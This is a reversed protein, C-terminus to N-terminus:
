KAPGKAATGSTVVVNHLALEAQRQEHKQYGHLWKLAAGAASVAVTTEVPVIADPSVHFGFRTLALHAIAVALTTFLPTALAVVRNITFFKM